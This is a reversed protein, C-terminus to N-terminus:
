VAIVSIRQSYHRTPRCRLVIAEAKDSSEIVAQAMLCFLYGAAMYPPVSAEVVFAAGSM